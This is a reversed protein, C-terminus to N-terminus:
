KMKEPRQPMASATQCVCILPSSDELRCDFLSSSRRQNVAQSANISDVEELLLHSEFHTCSLILAVVSLSLEDVM